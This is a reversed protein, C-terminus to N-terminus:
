SAGNSDGGLYIRSTDIEEHAGIFDAILRELPEVYISVGDLTYEGSGNDMWMTPTQPALLYAGGFLEQIDPSILNVVKNGTAAILPEM